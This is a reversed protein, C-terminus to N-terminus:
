LSVDFKCKYTDLDTSTGTLMVFVLYGFLCISTLGVSIHVWVCVYVCVVGLVRWFDFSSLYHVHLPISISELLVSHSALISTLMVSSLDYSSLLACVLVISFSCCVNMGFLGLSLLRLM